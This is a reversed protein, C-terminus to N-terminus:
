LLTWDESADFDFESTFASMDCPMWTNIAIATNCVILEGCVNMIAFSHLLNLLELMQGVLVNMWTATVDNM